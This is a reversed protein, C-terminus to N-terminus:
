SIEPTWGAEPAGHAFGLHTADSVIRAAIDMQSRFHRAVALVEEVDSAANHQNLNVLEEPIAIFPEFFAKLTRTDYVRHSLRKALAPMWFDIFAKDFHVSEGALYIPEDVLVQVKDLTTLVDREAQSRTIASESQIREILGTKTHMERVYDNVRADFTAIPTKIETSLILTDGNGNVLLPSLDSHTLTYAIELIHDERPDLGTTELDLWCLM